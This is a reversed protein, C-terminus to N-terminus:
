KKVPSFVYWQKSGELFLKGGFSVFVLEVDGM